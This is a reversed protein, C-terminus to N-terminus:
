NAPNNKHKVQNVQTAQGMTTNNRGLVAKQRTLKIIENDEMTEM